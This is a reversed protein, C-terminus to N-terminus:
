NGIMFAKRILANTDICGDIYYEYRKKQTNINMVVKIRCNGKSTICLSKDCSRKEKLSKEFLILNEKAVEFTIYLFSTDKKLYKTYFDFLSSQNNISINVYEKEKASLKNGTKYKKLIKGATKRQDYSLTSKAVLQMELSDFSLINMKSGDYFLRVEKQTFVRCGSYESRIVLTDGVRIQESLLTDSVSANSKNFVLLCISLLIVRMVKKNIIAVM